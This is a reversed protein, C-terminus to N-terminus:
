LRGERLAQLFSPMFMAAVALSIGFGILSCLFGAKGSESEERCRFGLILGIAGCIIGFACGWISFGVVISTIGLVISAAAAKSPKEAPQEYRAAPLERKRGFM